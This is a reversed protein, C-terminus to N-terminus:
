ADERTFVALQTPAGRDPDEPGVPLHRVTYGRRDGVERAWDGFQARTWEFRHDPHRLGGTPLTEFLANYEVNPTTVLVVRPRAVAFVSHELAPLRMPDLHEVVEMLVAADFGKLEADAYTLSSQRLTIRARLREPMRDLRLARAAERLAKTSVDVGCIETFEPVALLDRLLAGGGCGLDLVRRAGAEGLQALVVARRQAALSIRPEALANDLEEPEVEELEALRSLASEVLPKHRALYRTTILERDPHGALWGEGARLLKDVEDQAVWYHKSGDLVPLLVYLHKLADALRHTGTLTVDAYRSDGGEDLPIPRIGVEWGLPTFLREVLRHPLVPVGVRLPIPTAALDQHSRSRGNMATRFVSGLAVTFLSGAVYPRDNVYHTLTSGPGRVLAVPDVELLLAVTCEEEDARPYFVHATGSSTTFSQARDPHKHLLHGLDTAPRHTTTLTLLM